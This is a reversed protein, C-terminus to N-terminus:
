HEIAAAVGGGEVLKRHPQRNGGSVELMVRGQDVTGIEFYRWQSDQAVVSFGYGLLPPELSDPRALEQSGSERSLLAACPKKM